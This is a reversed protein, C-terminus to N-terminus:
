LVPMKRAYTVDYTWLDIFRSHKLDLVLGPPIILGSAPSLSSLIYTEAKSPRVGDPSRSLALSVGDGSKLDRPRHLLKSGMALMGGAYCVLHELTPMYTEYKIQGIVVLDEEGPVVEVDQILGNEYASDIASAYLGEYEKSATANRFLLSAKLLYEYYSDTLAGLSYVGELKDPQSDDLHTPLLSGRRRGQKWGNALQVNARHVIDYYEAKGTIQALRGFELSFSGVEALCQRGAYKGDLKAGLQYRGQPLGYRTSITFGDTSHIAM